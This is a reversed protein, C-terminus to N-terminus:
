ALKSAECIAEVSACSMNAIFARCGGDVVSKGGLRTLGGGNVGDLLLYLLQDLGAGFALRL